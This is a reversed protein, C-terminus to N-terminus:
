GLALYYLGYATANNIIRNFTFGDADFSTMEFQKLVTGTAGIIRFFDSSSRAQAANSPTATSAICGQSISSGDQVAMGTGSWAASTGTNPSGFVIVARPKFGLGSISATGTNSATSYSGFAIKLAGGMAQRALAEVAALRRAESLVGPMSRAGSHPFGFPQEPFEPRSM